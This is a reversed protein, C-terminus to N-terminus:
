KAAALFAAALATLGAADRSAILDKPFLNGGVGVAVAGARLFAALNQEDVGGVAILPLDRLPAKVAKFFAPGVVSAPFIKVMDAGWVKAQWAESPTFAGPLSVLGLRKTEEIVARDVVPSIMYEAGASAALRVEEPTMVTGAGLRLRGGLKEKLFAIKEATEKKGDEGPAFPVELLGVGASALTDAAFLLADKEMGRAIAILKQERILTLIEQM